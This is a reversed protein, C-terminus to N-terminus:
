VRSGPGLARSGLGRSGIRARGHATSFDPMTSGPLADRHASATRERASICGAVICGTNSYAGGVSHGTSAYHRVARHVGQM